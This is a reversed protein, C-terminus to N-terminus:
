ETRAVAQEILKSLNELRRLDAVVRPHAFIRVRKVYDDFQQEALARVVPSVEGLPRYRAEKPFHIEVNFEVERAVPPADFLIEHPAVVRGLATSAVAAFHEACATLWPYPRRALRRYLERQEFFSYQALRKYLQRTPGFLGRLLEGAPGDGAAQQLEAIMPGETMRFLADLDLSGHLLFFARQLMSTAARVGHHWYVESFMVYRAFVMLEAATKGKDTIALGDGARNLCLSGLLRQQDFHRGYPVGAHLSDRFLYDMKDIDIPGSLMSHLIRAAKERPKESLLAVLDRPNIGWDDRLVDALEGELLFSNAFLEHSPVSPLRIDELPHCFPWHGLDHLLAAAIFLEADAATVVAAFREDAALQKLYLLALRYVGLSHEFRTHIAAPYVLSVLGLQSIRALRRFEATDIVQRVRGTLPVDLEPPIRVMARRADLAAVEPIDRISTTM